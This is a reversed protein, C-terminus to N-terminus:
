FLLSVSETLHLKIPICVPVLVQFEIDFKCSKECFPCQYPKEGTHQNMHFKLDQGRKFTKTCINCKHPRVNSHSIEHQKLTSNSPYVRGCTRCSFKEGAHYEKHRQLNIQTKFRNCILLNKKSNKKMEFNELLAFFIPSFNFKCEDANIVISNAKRNTRKLM